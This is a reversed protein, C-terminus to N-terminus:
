ILHAKNDKSCVALLPCCRKPKARDARTNEARARFSRSFLIVSRFFCFM